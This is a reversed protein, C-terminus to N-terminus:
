KDRRNSWTAQKTAKNFGTKKFHRGLMSGLETTTMEYKIRNFSLDGLEVYGHVIDFIERTTLNEKKNLTKEIRQKIRQKAM